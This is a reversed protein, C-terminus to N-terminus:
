LGNHVTFISHTRSKTLVVYLRLLCEAWNDDVELVRPRWYISIKEEDGDNLTKMGSLVIDDVWDLAM